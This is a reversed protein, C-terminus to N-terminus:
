IMSEDNLFNWYEIYRTETERNGYNMIQRKGNTYSENYNKILTSLKFFDEQSKAKIIIQQLLRATVGDVIVKHFRDNIMPNHHYLINLNTPIKIYLLKIKYYLKPFWYLTHSNDEVVFSYITKIHGTHINKSTNTDIEGIENVKNIRIFEEYTVEKSLARYDNHYFYIESPLYFDPPMQLYDQENTVNYEIKEKHLETEGLIDIIVEKTLEKINTILRTDPVDIGINNTVSTIITNYDM